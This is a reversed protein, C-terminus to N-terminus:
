VSGIYEVNFNRAFYIQESWAQIFIYAVFMKCICTELDTPFYIFMYKCVAFILLLIFSFFLIQLQSQLHYLFTFPFLCVITSLFDKIHINNIKFFHILGPPPNSLISSTIKNLKTVKQHKQAM